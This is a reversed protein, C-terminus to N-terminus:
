REEGTVERARGLITAAAAEAFDEERNSRNDILLSVRENECLNSFKRTLRPTTFVLTKLDPASAFAILSSYPKGHDDTSLVALRQSAALERAIRELAIADEM